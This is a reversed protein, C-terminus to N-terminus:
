SRTHFYTRIYIYILTHIHVYIHEHLIAYSYLYSGKLMREYLHFRKCTTIGITIGQQASPQYQYTITSSSSSPGQPLTPFLKDVVGSVCMLIHMCLYLYFFVHITSIYITYVYVYKYMGLMHVGKLYGNMVVGYVTLYM